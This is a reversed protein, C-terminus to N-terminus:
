KELVTLTIESFLIHKMDEEFYYSKKGTKFEIFGKKIGIVRGKFQIGMRTDTMIALKGIINKM